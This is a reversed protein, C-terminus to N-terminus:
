HLCLQRRLLDNKKRELSARLYSPFGRFYLHSAVPSFMETRQCIVDVTLRKGRGSTNIRIKIAHVKGNITNQARKRSITLIKLM